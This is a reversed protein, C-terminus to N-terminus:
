PRIGERRLVQTVFDWAADVDALVQAGTRERFARRAVSNIAGALLVSEAGGIQAASCGASSLRDLYGRVVDAAETPLAALAASDPRYPKETKEKLAPSAAGSGGPAPTFGDLLWDTTVRLTRALAALVAPDKPLIGGNEWRSVTNREVGVAAALDGQTWRGGSSTRLRQRSLRVREGFSDVGGLLIM